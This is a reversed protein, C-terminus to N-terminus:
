SSETILWPAHGEKIWYKGSAQRKYVDIRNKVTMTRLTVPTFVPHM